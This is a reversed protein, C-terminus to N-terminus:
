KIGIIFKMKKILVNELSKFFVFKKIKLIKDIGTKAIIRLWSFVKRSGNNTWNEIKTKTKKWFLILSVSFNKIIEAIIEVDKKM